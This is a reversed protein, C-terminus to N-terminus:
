LWLPALSNSSSFANGTSFFEANHFIQPNFIKNIQEDKDGNSKLHLFLCHFKATNGSALFGVFIKASDQIFTIICFFFFFVSCMGLQCCCLCCCACPTVKLFSNAMQNSDRPKLAKLSVINYIKWMLNPLWLLLSFGIHYSAAVFQVNEETPPFSLAVPAKRVQPGIDM